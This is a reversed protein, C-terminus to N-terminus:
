ETEREQLNMIKDQIENALDAGIFDGSFYDVKADIGIKGAVLRAIKGRLKPPSSRIQNWQFILGHKPIKDGKRLFRYLAKEAGLLQIRSAPLYALKKLNGAKAILKAGILSGIVAKINPALKQMLNDLYVELSERFKDLSLIESAFQQIIPIDIEAGMSDYTSSVINESVSSDLHFEIELTDQSYNTRKGFKKIMEVFVLDDLIIDDTLEPFHMAYWERLRMSFLSLTKKISELSEVVQSIILDIKSHYKRIKNKIISESVSKYTRILEDQSIEIGIEHLKVIVNTRFNKIEESFPAYNSDVGILTRSLKKLEKNDYIFQNYGAITLESIIKKYNETLKKNEIQFYFEEIENINNNSSFYNVIVENEDFTFVGLPSDVVFCKM